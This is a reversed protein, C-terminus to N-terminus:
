RSLSRKPPRASSTPWQGGADHTATIDLFVIEDAGQRNYEEACQVPDGVEKIGVFNIGKVVKGDRVDLCPIIRKDLMRESRIQYHCSKEWRLGSKMGNRTPIPTPTCTWASSRFVTSATFRSPTKTPLDPTELVAMRAGCGAAEALITDMLLSGIGGRRRTEDLVCINSIRYRNNWREPTGEVFGLLKEGDFAGFAVPDELWEGFFVDEFSKQVPSEFPQYRIQFGSASAQIDYSGGTQYRVTFKKGVYAAPDLKVIQM